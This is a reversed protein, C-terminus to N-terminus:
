KVKRLEGLDEGTFCATRGAGQAVGTGTLLTRTLPTGPKGKEGEISLVDAGTAPGRQKEAPQQTPLQYILFVSFSMFKLGCYGADAGM